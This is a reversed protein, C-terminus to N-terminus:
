SLSLLIADAVCLLSIVGLLAGCVRDDLVELVFTKM